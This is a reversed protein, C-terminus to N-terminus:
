MNVTLDYYQEFSMADELEDFLPNGQRRYYSDGCSWRSKLLQIESDAYFHQVWHSNYYQDILSQPVELREKFLSYSDSYSKNKAVNTSQLKFPTNVGMFEQMAGEFVKKLNELKLLLINAHAGRIINYGKEHSFKHEYINIDTFRELEDSFFDKEAEKISFESNVFFQVLKDTDNSISKKGYLLQYNGLLHLVLLHHAQQKM